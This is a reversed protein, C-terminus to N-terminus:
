FSLKSLVLLDNKLEKKIILPHLRKEWFFVFHCQHIRQGRGWIFYKTEKPKFVSKSRERLLYPLMLVDQQPM